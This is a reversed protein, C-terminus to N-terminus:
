TEPELEDKRNERRKSLTRPFATPLSFIILFTEPQPKITRITPTRPNGIRHAPHRDITLVVILSM